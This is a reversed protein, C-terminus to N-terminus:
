DETEHTVTICGELTIDFDADDNSLTCEVAGDVSCTKVTIKGDDAKASVSVAGECEVDIDWDDDDEGQQVATLPNVSLTAIMPVLPDLSATPFCPRAHVVESSLRPIGTSAALVPTAAVVAHGMAVVVAASCLLKLIRRMSRDLRTVPHISDSSHSRCSNM